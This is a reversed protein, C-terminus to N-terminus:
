DLTVGLYRPNEEFKICKRDLNVRLKYSALCNSLHFMNCVTKSINLKLRWNHFYSSMIDLDRSLTSEIRKFNRNSTTFATDDTYVYKKSTTEPLDSMYINFLLPALM